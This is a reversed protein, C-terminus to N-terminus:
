KDELSLFSTLENLNVITPVKSKDEDDPLTSAAQSNPVFWVGKWGAEIPHLADRVFDDGVM